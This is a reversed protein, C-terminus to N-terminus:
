PIPLTPCTDILSNISFTPMSITAGNISSLNVEFFNLQSCSSGLMSPLMEMNSMTIVVEPHQEMDMNDIEIQGLSLCIVKEASADEVHTKEKKAILILPLQTQEKQAEVM